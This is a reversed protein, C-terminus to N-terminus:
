RTKELIDQTLPFFKKSIESSMNYEFGEGLNYLKTKNLKSYEYLTKAFTINSDLFENYRGAELYGDADLTLEKRFANKPQKDFNKSYGDIGVYYLESPNFAMVFFGLRGAVGEFKDIKTNYYVLRDRYKEEFEKWLDTNYFPRGPKPELALTCDPNNQLFEILNPHNFDIIESLTLHTINKLKRVEDNLYFHTTTVVCDYELNEWNVDDTSPGAGLLLVRKGTFKDSFTNETLTSSKSELYKLM